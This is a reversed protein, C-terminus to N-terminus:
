MLGLCALVFSLIKFIPSVLGQVKIMASDQQPQFGNACADEDNSEGQFSQGSLSELKLNSIDIKDQAGAM